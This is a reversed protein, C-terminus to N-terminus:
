VFASTFIVNFAQLGQIYTSLTRCIRHLFNKKKLTQSKRIHFLLCLFDVSTILVPQEKRQVYLFKFGFYQWVHYYRKLFSM